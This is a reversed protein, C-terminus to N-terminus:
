TARNVLLSFICTLAHTTENREQGPVKALQVDHKNSARIGSLVVMYLFSLLHPSMVAIHGLAVAALSHIIQKAEHSGWRLLRHEINMILNCYQLDVKSGLDYM